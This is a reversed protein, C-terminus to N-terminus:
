LRQPSDAIPKMMGFEQLFLESFLLLLVGLELLPKIANYRM